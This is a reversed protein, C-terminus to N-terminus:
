DQAADLPRAHFLVIAEDGLLQSDDPVAASVVASIRSRRIQRILREIVNCAGDLAGGGDGNRSGGGNRLEAEDM